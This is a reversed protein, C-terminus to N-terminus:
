AISVINSIVINLISYKLTFLDYSFFIDIAFPQVSNFPLIKICLM